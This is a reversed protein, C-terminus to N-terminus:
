GRGTAVPSPPRRRALPPRAGTGLAAASAALPARGARGVRGAPSAAEELADLVERARRYGRGILEDTRSFDQWDVREAGPLDIVVVEVGAPVEALERRLRAHLALDFAGLLADLPRRPEPVGAVAPSCVLLVVRRAGAALAVSLATNDVVGGDVYREGDVEVPPFVGPLASSALVADLAPGEQLWAEAGDRLRTAVVVFPLPAEELREFRLLRAVVARLGDISYAGGRRALFRWPGSLRGSPFVDEARLSRWVEAALSVGELTPSGVLAAGNVAGISTGVVLDPRLGREILARLMGAQAAGRTGGGSLVFATPGPQVGRALRGPRRARRAVHALLEASLRADHDLAGAEIGHVPV